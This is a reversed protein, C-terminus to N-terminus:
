PISENIGYARVSNYTNRIEGDYAENKGTRKYMFLTYETGRGKSVVICMTLRVVREGM